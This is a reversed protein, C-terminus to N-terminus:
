LVWLLQYIFVWGKQKEHSHKFLNMNESLADVLQEMLIRGFGINTRVSVQKLGCARGPAALPVDWLAKIDTGQSMM